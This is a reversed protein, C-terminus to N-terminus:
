SRPSYGFDADPDHLLDESAGLEALGLALRVDRFGESLVRGVPHRLGEPSLEGRSLHLWLRLWLQDLFGDRLVYASTLVM